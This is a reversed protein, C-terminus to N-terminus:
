APGGAALATVDAALKAASRALEGLRRSADVLADAAEASDDDADVALTTWALSDAMKTALAALADAQGGVREAPGPRDDHPGDHGARMTCSRLTEDGDLGYSADCAGLWREADRARGLLGVAADRLAVAKAGFYHRDPAIEGALSRQLRGLYDACHALGEGIHDHWPGWPGTTTTNTSM